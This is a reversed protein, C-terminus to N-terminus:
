FQCNLVQGPIEARMRGSGLAQGCVSAQNSFIPRALIALQLFKAGRTDAM